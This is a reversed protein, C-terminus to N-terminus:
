EKDKRATRLVRAIALAACITVGLVALQTYRERNKVNLLDMVGDWTIAPTAGSALWAALLLAFIVYVVPWRFEGKQGTSGAGTRRLRCMSLTRRAPTTVNRQSM